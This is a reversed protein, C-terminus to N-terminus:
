GYKRVRRGDHGLKSEPLGIAISKRLKNTALKSASDRIRPGVVKRIKLANVM